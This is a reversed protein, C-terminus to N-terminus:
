TVQGRRHKRRRQILGLGLSGAGLLLATVPEPVTNVVNGSLTTTSEFAYGESAVPVTGSQFSINFLGQWQTDNGIGVLAELDDNSTDWFSSVSAAGFMDMFSVNTSTLGGILLPDNADGIVDGASIDGSNDVDVIGTLVMPGGGQFGLHVVEMSGINMTTGSILGGTTFDLSGDILSWAAGENAPAHFVILRDVEINTGTFVTGQGGAFNWTGSNSGYATSVEFDLTYPTAELGATSFSFVLLSLFLPRKM